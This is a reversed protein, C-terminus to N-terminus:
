DSFSAMRVMAPTGQDCPRLRARLCDPGTEGPRNPPLLQEILEDDKGHYANSLTLALADWERADRVMLHGTRIQAIAANFPM